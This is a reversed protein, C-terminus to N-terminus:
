RSTGYGGLITQIGFFLGRLFDVEPLRGKPQFGEVALIGSSTGITGRTYVFYYSICSISIWKMGNISLVLIGEESPFLM